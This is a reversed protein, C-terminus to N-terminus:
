KVHLAYWQTAIPAHHMETQQGAIADSSCRTQLCDNGVTSFTSKPEVSSKDGIGLNGQPAPFSDSGPNARLADERIQKLIKRSLFGAFSPSSPRRAVAM